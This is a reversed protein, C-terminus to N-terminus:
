HTAGKEQVASPVFPKAASAALHASEVVQCRGALPYVAKRADRNPVSGFVILGNAKSAM